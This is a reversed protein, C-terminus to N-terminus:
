RLHSIDRSIKTVHCFGLIYCYRLVPEDGLCECGSGGLISFGIALTVSSTVKKWSVFWSGAGGESESTNSLAAFSFVPGMNEAELQSSLVMCHRM